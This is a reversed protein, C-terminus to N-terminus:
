SDTKELKISKKSQIRPPENPIPKQYIKSLEFILVKDLKTFSVILNKSDIDFSMKLFTSDSKFEVAPDDFRLRCAQIQAAKFRGGFKM